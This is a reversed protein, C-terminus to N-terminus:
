KDLGQFRVRRTDQEKGTSQALPAYLEPRRTKIWRVGTCNERLSADLDAIVMYDDAKYTEALVRGYCDLIMANGTRIEDGDTGVGNSFVLFLGNDHARAPLWGMLWERGKPGKFEAEIAKPDAKRNHWLAPDVLGMCCPSPSKCGGTQHPALLIEAGKLATMRVNEGINNDYCILIGTRTGDPLDFVTFESGSSVHESIFCHIKRHKAFRGDPMAVVYTNYMTGDETVELLGAGITMNHEKALAMLRQSSPGQPVIEALTLLEDESRNRLRWYGTICCEPFATLSVGKAAALEVFHEITALNAEKNGDAHEFQVSAVRIDKM